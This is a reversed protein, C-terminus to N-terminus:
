VWKELIFEYGIYDNEDRYEYLKSIPFQVVRWGDAIADLVTNYLSNPSPPQPDHPQTPDYLVWASIPSRMNTSQASLYLVLQRRQALLHELQDLDSLAFTGSKVKDRGFEIWQEVPTPPLPNEEM